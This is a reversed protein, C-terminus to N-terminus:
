KMNSHEVCTEGKTTPKLLSIITLPTQPGVCIYIAEQLRSYLGLYKYLMTIYLLIQIVLNIKPGM